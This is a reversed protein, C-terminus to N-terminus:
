REEEEKKGFDFDAPKHVLYFPDDRYVREAEEYLDKLRISFILGRGLHAVKALGNEIIRDQLRNFNLEVPADLFRAYHKVEITSSRGDRVVTGKFTKLYRYPVEVMREFYHLFTAGKNMSTGFYINLANDDHLRRFLSERGLTDHSQVKLYEDKKKGWVGHSYVPDFTRGVNPLKRFYETLIGTESSTQDHDYDRGGLFHITYTPFVLTGESGVAQQFAGVVTELGKEFRGFAGLFSSVLLTDGKEVGITELTQVVQKQTFVQAGPSGVSDLKDVM